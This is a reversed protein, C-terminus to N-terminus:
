ARAFKREAIAAGLLAAIRPDALQEATNIKIHRLRKGPGGLLCDPDPLENGHFFGLNAHARHVVMYVYGDSMKHAGTGVM